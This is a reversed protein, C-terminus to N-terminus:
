KKNSLGLPGCVSYQCCTSPQRWQNLSVRLVAVFSIPSADHGGEAPKLLTAADVAALRDAEGIVALREASEGAVGQGRRQEGIALGEGRATEFVVPRAADDGGADFFGVAEEGKAFVLGVNRCRGNIEFIAEDDM